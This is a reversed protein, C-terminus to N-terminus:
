QQDVSTSTTPSARPTPRSSAPVEAPAAQKSGGSAIRTEEDLGYWPPAPVSLLKCVDRRRHRFDDYLNKWIRREACTGEHSGGCDPQMEELAKFAWMIHPKPLPGDSFQVLKAEKYVKEADWTETPSGLYASHNHRRFEGTILGYPRHPLVMASDEFRENVLEMDIRHAKVLMENGGDAILRRFNEFENLNPKIVMLASSLPWPKEDSLYARPMAIPTDPLLFLEDISQLLTSELDLAIVRDYYELSFAMFKTVSKDRTGTWDDKTRGEVILLTIPQLKVKYTDRALLLLQSERDKSDEVSLDWYDPYFLVRDAKSGFRALADLLLVAHCLSTGDTAYLSYAYRSWNVTLVDTTTPTPKSTPYLIWCVVIFGLLYYTYRRRWHFSSSPSEDVFRPLEDSRRRRM